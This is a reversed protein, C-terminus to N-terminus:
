AHGGLPRDLRALHLLERVSWLMATTAATAVTAVVIGIGILPLEEILPRQKNRM